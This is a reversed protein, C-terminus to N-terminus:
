RGERIDVVRHGQDLALDQDRPRDGQQGRQGRAPEGGPRVGLAQVAQLLRRLLDGLAVERRPDRVLARVLHTLECAREVLHLLAEGRSSLARLSNMALAEWSSRVGIKESPPKTSSRASSSGSGATLASNTRVM